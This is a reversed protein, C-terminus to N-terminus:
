KKLKAFAAAMAGMGQTEPTNRRETPKPRRGENRSAGGGAVATNRAAPAEDNLRLTLGVRKRDIDVELVKVQVTQGVRVVDRPDKIFRDSLASIHVLGDQHVGIDVFAGFNAVNTIVGELVMGVQLDNLTNIGEKFQATKFEPRPDRGPKEIETFIDRVTPVGFREDTFDSPSLGKLAGQRGMIERAETNIRTLIREVM